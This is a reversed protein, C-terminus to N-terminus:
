RPHISTPHRVSRLPDSYGPRLSPDYPRFRPCMAVQKRACLISDVMRVISTSLSPQRRTGTLCVSVQTVENLLFCRIVRRWCCCHTFVTPGIRTCRAPLSCYRDGWRWGRRRGSLGVRSVAQAAQRVRSIAACVALYVVIYNAVFFFAAGTIVREFTKGFLHVARSGGRQNTVRVAAHRGCEGGPACSRLCAM